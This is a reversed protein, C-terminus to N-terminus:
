LDGSNWDDDIYGASPGPVSLNRCVAIVRSGDMILIESNKSLKKMEDYKGELTWYWLRVKFCDSQCEPYPSYNILAERVLGSLDSTFIGIARFEKAPSFQFRPKDPKHPPLWYITGIIQIPYRKM